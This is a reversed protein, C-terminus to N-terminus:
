VAAFPALGTGASLYLLCALRKAATRVAVLSHQALLLAAAARKDNITTATIYHQDTTLLFHSTAQPQPARDNEALM